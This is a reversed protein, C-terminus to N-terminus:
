VNLKLVLLLSCCKSLDTVLSFVTNWGMTVTVTTVTLIPQFVPDLGTVSKFLPKEKSITSFGLTQCPTQLETLSSVLMKIPVLTSLQWVRFDSKRWIEAILHYKWSFQTAICKKEEVQPCFILKYPWINSGLLLKITGVQKNHGLGYRLVGMAHKFFFCFNRKSFINLNQIHSLSKLYPLKAIIFYTFIALVTLFIYCLM